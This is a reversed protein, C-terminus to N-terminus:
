FRWLKLKRVFKPVDCKKGFYAVGVVKAEDLVFNAHGLQRESKILSAFGLDPNDYTKQVINKKFLDDGSAQLIVTQPKYNPNTLQYNYPWQIALQSSLEAIDCMREANSREIDNRLIVYLTFDQDNQKDYKDSPDEVEQPVEKFMRVFSRVKLANEKNTIISYLSYDIFGLSELLEVYEHIVDEDKLDSLITSEEDEDLAYVYDQEWLDYFAQKIRDSFQGDEKALIMLQDTYDPHKIYMLCIDKFEETDSHYININQGVHYLKM